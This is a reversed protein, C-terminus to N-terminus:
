HSLLIASLFLKCLLLLETLIVVIMYLVDVCRLCFAIPRFHTQELASFLATYFRDVAVVNADVVTLKLAALSMPLLGCDGTM